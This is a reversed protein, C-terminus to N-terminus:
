SSCNPSEQSHSVVREQNHLHLTSRLKGSLSFTKSKQNFIIINFIVNLSNYRSNCNGTRMLSLSHELSSSRRKRVAQEKCWGQRLHKRGQDRATLPPIAARIAASQAPLIQQQEPESFLQSFCLNIGGRSPLM